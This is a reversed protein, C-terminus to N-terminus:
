LGAFTASWAPAASSTPCCSCTPARCWLDAETGCDSGDLNTRSGAWHVRYMRRNPSRQEVVLSGGSSAM